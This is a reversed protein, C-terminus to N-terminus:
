EPKWGRVQAGTEKTVRIVDCTCYVDCLLPIRQQQKKQQETTHAQEHEEALLPIVASPSHAM